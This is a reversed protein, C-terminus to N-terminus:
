VEPILYADKMIRKKKEHTTPAASVVEFVLGSAPPTSTSGPSPSISGPVVSVNVNGVAITPASRM